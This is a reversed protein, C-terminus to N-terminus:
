NCGVEERDRCEEEEGEWGRLSRYGLGGQRQGLLGGRRGMGQVVGGDERDSDWCEEEEEGRREMGQAIAVMWRQAPALFSFVSVGRLNFRYHKDISVKLTCSSEITLLLLVCFCFM